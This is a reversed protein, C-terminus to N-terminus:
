MVQRVSNETGYPNAVRLTCEPDERWQGDVMFRYHHTGPTLEVTVSWVGAQTKKLPIPNQQWETFDGVLTVVMAEPATLSFTQKKNKAHKRAM